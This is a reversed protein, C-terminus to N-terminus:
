PLNGGVARQLEALALAAEVQADIYALRAEVFRRQENLVDMVRLQGLRYAERVVELNGQSQDLVGTKLLELAERAANFRRFASEVELPIKERLYESRLRGAAARAEAAEVLGRTQQSRSLPISAGFALVNDRDKIPVQAGSADLGLQDFRSYRRIYRASLTLDPRAGSRAVEAEGAAQSELLMALRLDPRKELALKQMGALPRLGFDDPALTPGLALSESASLGAVRRLEALANSSRGAALVREAQARRLDALFLRGEIPAADGQEVRAQTLRQNQLNIQELEKSATLRAEAAVAEVFRSTVEFSLAREKEAVEAQALEVGKDAVKVRAARKGPAELVHAYGVSYEEEGATRLPGGTAVEIEVAPSPRVGAQRLLGAAEALRQRAALYDKNRLFAMRVLDAASLGAPPAQACVPLGFLLVAAIFRRAFCVCNM